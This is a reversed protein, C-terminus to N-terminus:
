RAYEKLTVILEPFRQWLHETQLWLLRARTQPSLRDSDIEALYAETVEHEDATFEQFVAPFRNRFETVREAPLSHSFQLEAWLSLLAKEASKDDLDPLIEEFSDLEDLAVYCWALTSTAGLHDEEDLELLTEFLAAAMEFEYFLFHDIASGRLLL